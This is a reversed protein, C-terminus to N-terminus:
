DGGEKQLKQLEEQRLNSAGNLWVGEAKQGLFVESVQRDALFFHNIQQYFDL